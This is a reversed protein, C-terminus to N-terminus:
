GRRYAQRFVLLRAGREPNWPFTCVVGDANKGAIQVFADSACRDCAYFPQQMGKERMQNLFRAMKRM